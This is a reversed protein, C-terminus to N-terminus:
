DVRKMGSTVEFLIKDIETDAAEDLGEEDLVSEFTDDMMEEM